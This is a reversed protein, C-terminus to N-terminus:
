QLFRTKSAHTVLYHILLMFHLQFTQYKGSKMALYHLITLPSSATDINAVGSSNDHYDIITMLHDQLNDGVPLDATVPIQSNITM